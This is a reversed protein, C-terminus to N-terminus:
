NAGLNIRGDIVAGGVAAAAAQRAGANGGVNGNDYDVVEADTGPEGHTIRVHIRDKGGSKASRIVTLAFRYDGSGNVTARGRYGIRGGDVTVADVVSSRLAMGGVNVQVQASGAAARESLFAFSGVAARRAGPGTGAGAAAFTGEGSIAAQAACIVVKREATSSKGSSDTITLRVTYIGSKRYAHQGSVSGTGNRGSVTGVTSSGDGWSWVAKHTDGTDVDTFGASFSLLANVRAPGTVTVSGAVPPQHHAGQPVLLVLSGTNTGAVITGSDNIAQGYFLTLGSPAGVVRSSLDVFGSARTWIYGRGNLSGVVQGRNNLDGTDSADVSPTGVVLLGNERSWIIGNRDVPSSYLEGIVLGKENIGDAWSQYSPETGLGQLGGQRTWIFAQDSLRTDFAAGGVIQGQENIDLARSAISPFDNLPIPGGGAAPWKTVQTLRPGQAEDSEGVITGADNLALGSSSSEPGLSGLNVMGTQPTWRYAGGPPTSGPFRATGTVHGKNNIDNANSNTAGASNLDVLGTQRSWRFGHYVFPAGTSASGVVQGHDNLANAIADPGGFTGLDRVTTGDYFRARPINDVFGTFAVQGKANIDAVFGNPALPVVRYTTNGPATASASSALALTACAAALPCLLWRRRGPSPIAANRTQM